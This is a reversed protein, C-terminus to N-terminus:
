TSNNVAFPHFFQENFYLLSVCLLAFLLFPRLLRRKSIGGALLAIIEKQQNSTTIVKITAMLLAFPLLVLARKSLHYVYVLLIKLFSLHTYTSTHFAYDILVYLFYFGFLILLFVKSLEKLFYREWIM